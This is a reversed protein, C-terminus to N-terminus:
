RVHYKFYGYMKARTYMNSADSGLNDMNDPIVNSWTNKNLNNWINKLSFFLSALPANLHKQATWCNNKKENKM